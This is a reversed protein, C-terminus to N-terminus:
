LVWPPSQVWPHALVGLYQHLLRFLPHALPDLVRQARRDEQVSLYL